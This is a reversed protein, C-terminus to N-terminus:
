IQNLFPIIAIKHYRLEDSMEIARHMRKKFNRGNVRIRNDLDAIAFRIGQLKQNHEAFIEHYSHLLNTVNGYYNNMQAFVFNNDTQELQDVVGDRENGNGETVQVFTDEM